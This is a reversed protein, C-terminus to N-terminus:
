SEWWDGEGCSRQFGGVGGTSGGTRGGARGGERRKQDECILPVTNVVVDCDSEESSARGSNREGAVITLSVACSVLFIDKPSPDIQSRSM